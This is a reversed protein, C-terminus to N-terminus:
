RGFLGQPRITLVVLVMLFPVILQGTPGFFHGGLTQSLGFIIGGIFTGVMSGLGGLIIVGFAIILLANGTTPNFSFTIGYFVGAIAALAMAIGFAIQYVRSPNIGMLEATQRDQSAATIAQGLYTRKLFQYIVLMVALAAAFDLVYVVPIYIDGIQISEFSYDTILSRSMPTWVIQIANQVVLAIGFAIILAADASMKVARNLLFKEILIGLLFFVPIGILLGLIPDIGFTSLVAFALYSGLIVLTGHAVNIVKMVGFVLSLGLAVVVYLGGLLIGIIIPSALESILEM